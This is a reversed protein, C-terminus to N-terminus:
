ATLFRMRNHHFIALGTTLSLLAWLGLYEWSGIPTSYASFFADRSLEIAHFIPNWSFLSWYEPPIMPACFFIGSIFFMPQMIMSIIKNVDAWYTAICCLVLGLGVAIIMLLLSAGLLALLNDPIVEFGLWAMFGFIITYVVIFNVIEIIIRAIIPDIANVQRYSLLGRNANIAQTLQPLLKGFLKFPLMGTFLFLAVPINAISDRGLLTFIIGMVAVQTIPEAIAWFYGLRNSGFRTKLERIILAFIVDCMINFHSRHAKKEKEM